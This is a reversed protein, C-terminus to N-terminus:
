EKGTFQFQILRSGTQTASPRLSGMVFALQTRLDASEAPNRYTAQLDKLQQAALLVGHKQIHRNLEIAATLRLKGRTPDLVIGGLRQQNDAGPLRGLIEVAEVALEPSRLAQVVAEQAPRVDYGRIEGRAMRWLIDLAVRTLEQREKASLKAGGADTIGKEITAKLDDALTTIVEPVVWTNQYRAALRPATEQGKKDALIFLPLLRSEKDQRFQALVYPFEGFPVSSFLLVVDFDASRNMQEFAERATAVLVPNFGAAAVTKRTGAAKDAPTYAVMAKTQTDSAVFRQMIEVVRGAAVPVTAAPMRLMARAAAFQVRRDPYYLARVIGQPVGSVSARAARVEGRDGLAEVLALIVRTKNESLARELTGILLDSDISALLRRLDGPTKKLFVQDLQPAFNHDLMLNLFVTQAPKYAPDLDLAERAYRLGFLEEAQDVDLIDPSVALAAGDWRWFKVKPDPFKVRHQYYREALETLAQKAPPLSDAPTDLLYSLTEGARARVVLPYQPASSLHWLYPVVRPDGRHKLIDLLTLRLDPSQADKLTRANLVELLPPVVDSNLRELADVMKAHRPRGAAEQLAEVLYPAARARSRDLQAFAYAREEVTAADLHAIFKRLRKADSLHKDLAGTVRNILVGVNKEAERQFPPFDSWKKVAQLRLFASLGETEEIKLLEKDADEPPAIDLLQKLHLAALDFKGVGMEFKMAAWFELVTKPRKFFLRYEEEAKQLLDETAKKADAPPKKEEQAQLARAGSSICILLFAVSTIRSLPAEEQTPTL